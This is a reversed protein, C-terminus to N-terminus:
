QTIYVYTSKYGYFGQSPPAPGSLGCQVTATVSKNPPGTAGTIQMTVYGSITQDGTLVYKACTSKLPTSIVPLQLTLSM